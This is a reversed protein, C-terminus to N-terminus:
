ANLKRHEIKLCHNMVVDLGAARALDAAAQNEIELQMWLCGARIAIADRALPPIDESKRFCDVIDVRQGSPALADAAEQLSAHVPEGLIEQGAYAPNVPLVRYGQQQLYEAVGYSAREPKSSLGVIAITKSDQLIQAITRM